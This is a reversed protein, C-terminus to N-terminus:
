TERNREREREQLVSNVKDLLEPRNTAALIVVPADSNTNFGVLSSFNGFSHSLSRSVLSSVRKVELREGDEGKVREGRETGRQTESREKKKTEEREM